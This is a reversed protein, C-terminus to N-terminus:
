QFTEKFTMQIYKQWGEDSKPFPKSSQNKKENASPKYFM